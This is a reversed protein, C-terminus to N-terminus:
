SPFISLPHPLGAREKAAETKVATGRLQEQCPVCSCRSEIQSLQRSFTPGQLPLFLFETAGELASASLFLSCWQSFPSVLAPTPSVKLFLLNLVVCTPLLTGLQWFAGTVSDPSLSPCLPSPVCSGRSQGLQWSELLILWNKQIDHNLAISFSFDSVKLAALFLTPFTKGPHPFPM